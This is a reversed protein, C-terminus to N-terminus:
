ITAPSGEMANAVGTEVNRVMHTIVASKIASPEQTDMLVFLAHGMLLTVTKGRAISLALYHVIKEMFGQGQVDMYKWNVCSTSLSNTTTPQFRPILGTTIIYLTDGTHTWLVHLTSLTLYRKEQINPTMFACLGTKLTWQIQYTFLFDLFDQLTRTNVMGPSIIQGTNYLSTISM